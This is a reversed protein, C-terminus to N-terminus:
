NGSTCLDSRRFVKLLAHILLVKIKRPRRGTSATQFRSALTFEIAGPWNPSQHVISWRYMVPLRDSVCARSFCLRDFRWDRWVEGPSQGAHDISRDNSRRLRCARVTWMTNESGLDQGEFFQMPRPRLCVGPRFLWLTLKGFIRDTLGDDVLNLRSIRNCTATSTILDTTM